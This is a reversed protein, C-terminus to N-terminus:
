RDDPARVTGGRRVPTLPKPIAMPPRPPPPHERGKAVGAENVGGFHRRPANLITGNERVPPRVLPHPRITMRVKIRLPHPAPCCRRTRPARNAHVTVSNARMLAHRVVTADNAREQSAGSTVDRIAVPVIKLIREENGRNGHHSMLRVIRGEHRVADQMRREVSAAVREANMTQRPVDAMRPDANGAVPEGNKMPHAVHHVAVRVGKKMPLAADTIPHDANVAACTASKTQRAGGQMLREASPSEPHVNQIGHVEVVTGTKAPNLAAM